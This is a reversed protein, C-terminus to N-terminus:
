GNGLARAVKADIMKVGSRAIAKELRDAFDAATLVATASLKPSEFPLAEVAARIRVSLPQTVDRYVAQPLGLATTGEPEPKREVIGVVSLDIFGDMMSGSM